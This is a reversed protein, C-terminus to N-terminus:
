FNHKSASRPCIHRGTVPTPTHPPDTLGIIPERVTRMAPRFSNFYFTIKSGDFCGVCFGTRPTGSGHGFFPPIGVHEMPERGNGGLSGGGKVAWYRPVFRRCARTCLGVCTDDSTARPTGYGRKQHSAYAHKKYGM